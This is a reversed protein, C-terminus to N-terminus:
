SAASTPVAAGGVEGSGLATTKEGSGASCRGVGRDIALADREADGIPLKESGEAVGSM